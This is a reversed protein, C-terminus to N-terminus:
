VEQVHNAKIEVSATTVIKFFLQDCRLCISISDWVVEDTVPQPSFQRAGCHPCRFSICTTGNARLTRLYRALEDRKRQLAKKM